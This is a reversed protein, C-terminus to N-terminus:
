SSKSRYGTNRRIYENRPEHDPDNVSRFVFAPYHSKKELAALMRHAFHKETQTQWTINTMEDWFAPPLSFHPTLHPPIRKNGGVCVVCSFKEDKYGQGWKESM